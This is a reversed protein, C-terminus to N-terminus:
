LKGTGAKKTPKAGPKTKTPQTGTPGEAKAGAAMTKAEAGAMAVEADLQRQEEEAQAEEEFLRELEDEEIPLEAIERLRAEVAPTPHLMGNAALQGLFTGFSLLDPKSLDEFCLSARLEVPVDNAEYLWQVPGKNLADKIIDLYWYLSRTFNASKEAGLAFSGQKETGLMLFEAAVSMAIRADYRRVVPDPLMKTGGNTSLLSISYGTNVGTEGAEFESPFVIGECEDRHILQTLREMERRTAVQAASASGSMIQAPVKIVPLGNLDRAIGIAEIEELRKKMYWPRYANRLISRGEPNNKFSRTRIHVCRDMPLRYEARKNSSVDAGAPPLQIAALIRGTEPEIEWRDITSQPRLALSRWGFRADDYRSHYRPNTESPGLRLKYVVEHLSYGYVLSSLADSVFDSWSGEMDDLCSQLFEAEKKAGESEDEAPKVKWKVKRLYSEINYLVGGVVPDNDRMEEFVKVAKGGRLNPHFEENPRGNYHKLGGIGITLSSPKRKSPM